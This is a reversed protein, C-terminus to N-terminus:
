ETLNNIFETIAAAAEEEQEGSTQITVPTGTKIGALLISFIQKANFSGESTVLQIDCPFSSCLKRLDSAPRAHLGTKNRVVVDSTVM